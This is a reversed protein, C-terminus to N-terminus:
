PATAPAGCRSTAQRTALPTCGVGAPCERCATTMRCTRSGVASTMPGVRFVMTALASMVGNGVKGDPPPYSASGDLYPRELPHAYIPVDWKEALRMLGGVHDSHGHTLIIAAPRAGKRFRAEVASEIFMSTGPLGADILVWDRDGADPKGYFVVNVIGLRRFALDGSAGVEVTHDDRLKDQVPDDACSTPDVPVEHEKTPASSFTQEAPAQEALGAAPSAVARATELQLWLSLLLLLMTRDVLPDSILASSSKSSPVLLCAILKCHIAGFWGAALLM